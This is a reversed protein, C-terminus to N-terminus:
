WLGATSDKGKCCFTPWYQLLCQHRLLWCGWTPPLHIPWYLTKRCFIFPKVASATAVLFGEEKLNNTKLRHPYILLLAVYGLILRSFLIELPLYLRGVTDQYICFDIGLHFYRGICGSSGACSSTRFVITYGGIRFIGRFSFSYRNNRVIPSSSLIGIHAVTWTSKCPKSLLFWAVWM